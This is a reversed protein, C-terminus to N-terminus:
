APEGELRSATSSARHSVWGAAGSVRRLGGAFARRLLGAREVPLPAFGDEGLRMRRLRAEADAEARRERVMDQAIIAYLQWM